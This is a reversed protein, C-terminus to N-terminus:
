LPVRMNLYLEEVPSDLLASINKAAASIRLVRNGFNKGICLKKQLELDERFEIYGTLKLLQIANLTTALSDLFRSSFNVFFEPKVAVLAAAERIRTRGDGMYRVTNDHMILPYVLLAKAVTLRHSYELVSMLGSACIGINNYSNTNGTMRGGTRIGDSKKM